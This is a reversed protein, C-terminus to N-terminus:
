RDQLIHIEGTTCFGLSRGWYMNASTTATSTTELLIWNIFIAGRGSLFVTLITKSAAIRPCVRTPDEDASVCWMREHDYHQLFWSEDGTVIDSFGVIRQDELLELLQRALKVQKLRLEDTLLHPVWRLLYNKFRIKEVLHFYGTSAPIGLSDVITRVSSFPSRRLISLIEAETDELTPRGGMHQTMLDKRRLRLQHLWYKISPKAYADQGYMDSLETVIDDLKLGKLHLFKIIHRQELRAPIASKLEVHNVEDNKGSTECM